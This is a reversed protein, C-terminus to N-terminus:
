SAGERGKLMGQVQREIDELLRVVRKANMALMQVEVSLRQLKAEATQQVVGNEDV